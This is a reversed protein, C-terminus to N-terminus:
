LDTICDTDVTHWPNSLCLSIIIKSDIKVKYFRINQPQQPLQTFQSSGLILGSDTFKAQGFRHFVRYREPTTGRMNADLSSLLREKHAPTLSDLYSTPASTSGRWDNTARHILERQRIEGFQERDFASHLLIKRFFFDFWSSLCIIPSKEKWKRCM